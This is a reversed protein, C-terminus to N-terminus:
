FTLNHFPKMIPAIGYLMADHLMDPTLGPVIRDMYEKRKEALKRCFWIVLIFTAHLVGCHPCKDDQTYGTRNTMVRAWAAGQQILKLIGQNEAKEAETIARGFAKRADSAFPKGGVGLIVDGVELVGDAPSGKDVKTMLIQRSDITELEWGWIWGRAGTPGLNWDHKDDKKGGKTLDPVPPPKRAAKCLGACGFLLVLVM